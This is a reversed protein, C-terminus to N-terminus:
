SPLCPCTRTTFRTFIALRPGLPVGCAFVQIKQVTSVLEGVKQTWAPDVVLDMGTM